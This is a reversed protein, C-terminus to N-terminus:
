RGDDRCAAYQEDTVVRIALPMFAHRVGCLESCQGYYIGTKTAQFWTENLRGPVADMKLGFAPMAFNHLVDGATVIVRIVKNVPVVIDNDVALLRPDDPGLEEDELMIASFEEIGEDPYEFGWYWQYGIAKVTVSAEPITQEMYLLRFSPIAIVVLILIPVVTWVVEVTTNHSTKSPNPNAKRNFRVMAIILLALVFLTIATIIVLLLFHFDSIAEMVPSAPTQFGLQWPTPQAAFAATAQSALLIASLGLGAKRLANFVRHGLFRM